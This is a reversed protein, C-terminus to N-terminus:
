EPCQIESFEIADLLARLTASLEAIECTSRHVVAGYRDLGFLCIDRGTCDYRRFVSGDQDLLITLTSPANPIPERTIALLAVGTHRFDDLIPMVEYLLNPAHVAQPIFLLGVPQKQRFTRLSVPNGDPMSPLTFLPAIVEEIAGITQVRHMM